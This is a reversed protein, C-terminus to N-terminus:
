KCARPPTACDRHSTFAAKIVDNVSWDRDDMGAIVSRRTYRFRSFSYGKKNKKKDPIVTASKSPAVCLRQM